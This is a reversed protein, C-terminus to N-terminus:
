EATRTPIYPLPINPHIFIHIEQTRYISRVAAWAESSDRGYVEQGLKWTYYDGLAAFVAQTVKPAAILLEAHSDPSLRSARSLFSSVWYVGAFIAPHISSRLHNKWEQAGGFGDLNSGISKISCPPSIKPEGVYDVPRQQTRFGDAM